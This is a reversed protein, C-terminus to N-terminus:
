TLGGMTLDDNYKEYLENLSCGDTNQCHEEMMEIILTTEKETPTYEFFESNDDREVQYYMKLAGSEPEYDAYLNLWEDDRIATQTGFKKDVDFWTELYASVVENETDVELDSGITIDKRELEKNEKM